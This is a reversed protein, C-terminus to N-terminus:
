LGVREHGGQVASVGALTCGFSIFRQCGELRQTKEVVFKCQGHGFVKRGSEGLLSVSELVLNLKSVFQESTPFGCLILGLKELLVNVLM